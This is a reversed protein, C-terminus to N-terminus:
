IGLRIYELRAKARKSRNRSIRAMTVIIIVVNPSGKKLKSLLDESVQNNKVEVEVRKKKSRKKGKYRNDKFLKTSASGSERRKAYNSVMIEKGATAM